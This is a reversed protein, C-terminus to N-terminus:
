NQRRAHDSWNGVVATTNVRNVIRYFRKYEYDVNYEFMIIIITM